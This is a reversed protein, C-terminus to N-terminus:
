QRQHRWQRWQGAHEFQRIAYEFSLSAPQGNGRRWQHQERRENRQRVVFAQGANRRVCGAIIRMGYPHDVQVYLEGSFQIPLRLATKVVVGCAAMRYFDRPVSLEAPVGRLDPQVAASQARALRRYTRRAANRAHVSKCLFCM